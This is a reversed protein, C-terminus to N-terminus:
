EVSRLTRRASRREWVAHLFALVVALLMVRVIPALETMARFEPPISLLFVIGLLALWEISTAAVESLLPLSLIREAWARDTDATTPRKADRAASVSSIAYGGFAVMVAVAVVFGAIWDWYTGIAVAAFMGVCPLTRVWRRLHEGDIPKDTM